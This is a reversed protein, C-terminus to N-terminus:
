STFLGMANNEGNRNGRSKGSPLRVPVRPPPSGLGLLHSAEGLVEALQLPAESGATSHPLTMDLHFPTRTRAHLTHVGCLM